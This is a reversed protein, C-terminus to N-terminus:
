RESEELLTLTREDMEGGCLSVLADEFPTHRGDSAVAFLTMSSRFKRDDPSGFITALPRDRLALVAETCTVLRPGLVAHELYAHAEGFSGIGYRQAMASAGLGRLQPFIFWMWHTAKRGAHLEGLAREYTAEQANLFRALDFPDSGHM